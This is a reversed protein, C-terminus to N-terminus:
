GIPHDRAAALASRLADSLLLSDVGAITFCGPYFEPDGSRWPHIAMGIGRERCARAVRAAAADCCADDFGAAVAFDAWGFLVGHPRGRDLIADISEVGEFTEILFLCAVARHAAEIFEPTALGPTSTWRARRVHAGGWGRDGFPPFSLSRRAAEAQEPTSVMPFVIGQAGADLVRGVEDGDTSRPRVLPTVSGLEAAMIMQEIAELGTSTHELDLIAADAAHAGLMEVISPSALTVWMVAVDPRGAALAALFRNERPWFTSV